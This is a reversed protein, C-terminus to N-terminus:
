CPEDTKVWNGLHCEYGTGQSCVVDGEQFEQGNWHCSNQADNLIVTSEDEIPGAIPSNQKSQDMPEVQIADAM